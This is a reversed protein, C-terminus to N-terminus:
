RVRYYRVEVFGAGAVGSATPPAPEALGTRRLSTGDWVHLRDVGGVSRYAIYLKGHLSQATIRMGYGSTVDIADVPSITSWVTTKRCLVYNQTTLHQALVWLESDTENTGPVHRHVFTIAQMNPNGTIAVPLDVDTCGKRREGLTSLNFEVNEAVTCQDYSLLHAPDTDNLGGRLNTISFINNTEAM